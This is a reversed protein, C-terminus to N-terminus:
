SVAQLNAHSFWCDTRGVWASKWGRINRDEEKDLLSDKALLIDCNKVPYEPEDGWEIAYMTDDWNMLAAVLAEQVAFFPAFSQKGSTVLVEWRVEMYTANATRRDQIDPSGANWIMVEPMTSMGATERRPARLTSTFKIRNAEKVPDTFATKAELLDWLKLHIENFINDTLTM